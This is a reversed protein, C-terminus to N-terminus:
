QRVVDVGKPPKFEFLKKPFTPNVKIASLRVATHQGLQDDLEIATLRDKEFVLAVKQFNAKSSKSTLEYRIAIGDVQRKVSFEENVTHHSGSLFLAATQGVGDSQKKVTVQELDVDYVWIFDGDAIVTQAMPDETNWLFRGPRQFAMNGTSTSLVRKKARVVQKFHASMSTMANLKKQVEDGESSAFGQVAVLFCALSYVMWKM